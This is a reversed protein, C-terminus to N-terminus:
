RVFVQLRILPRRLRGLLGRVSECGGRRGYMHVPLAVCEGGDRCDGRRSGGEHRGCLIRHFLINVAGFDALVTSRCLLPNTVGLKPALTSCKSTNTTPAPSDPM